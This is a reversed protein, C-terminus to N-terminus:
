EGGFVRMLELYAPGLLVVYLAPFLCFVLPFVLKVGVKQAREEARQRRKSRSVEAHSRLAQVVSTGFRDTQLLMTALSRVDDVETREALGRFVDVRPKGARIEAISLRLQESLAPYTVDLEESAKLIAQDLGAGAELCLVFLDLADALGNEIEKRRKGVMRQLLFGPLVYGALSAIALAVWPNLMSHFVFGIAGLVVPSALEAASFWAVANASTYGTLTLERRLRRTSGRSTPLWSLLRGAALEGGAAVIPVALVGSTHSDALTDLRRGVTTRGLYLTAGTLCLLAVSVFVAVLAVVIEPTM